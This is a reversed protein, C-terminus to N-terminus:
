RPPIPCIVYISTESTTQLIMKDDREQIVAPEVGEARFKDQEQTFADALFRAAASMDHFAFASGVSMERDKSFARCNIVAYELDSLAPNSGDPRKLEFMEVVSEEHKDSNTKLVAYTYDDNNDAEIRGTRLLDTDANCAYTVMMNM